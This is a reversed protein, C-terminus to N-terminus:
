SMTQSDMLQRTALEPKSALGYIEQSLEKIPKNAAAFENNQLKKKIKM